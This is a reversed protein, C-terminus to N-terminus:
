QPAPTATPPFLSRLTPTPPNPDIIIPTPQDPQPFAQGQTPVIVPTPQGSQDPTPIVFDTPQVPPQDTAPVNNVAVPVVIVAQHGQGDIAVLRMTYVGNPLQSTDWRGLFSNDGPQQSLIPGDVINFQSPNQGQGVEIQYRNFGPVSVTGRIEVLGQVTAGQSPSAVRVIPRPMNPDCQQTPPPTIPLTIGRQEAWAKGAPDGNLWAIATPDDINLFVKNIVYEPCSDNAIFGTFSDVQLTKIVDSAPPPPNAAIFIEPRRNRCEQFDQTGFDTCINMQQVGPSPQFQLIPLGAHADTMVQRWIPAAGIIGSNGRMATNNSNGVWVGVVLQPTYGLTWNDKYENTTGTKAAAPRQGLYLPSNAGFAPTRAQNDSLISTLLYAVGPDVVQTAPHETAEFVVEENNGNKRTVKAISYFDVRKGANALVSYGRVMDILPVEVSGLAASLGAAEPRVLPFTLGVRDAVNQFRDVGAYSLAKVAPINYSNALASRMSHPGHFRGDYNRPCYGPATGFCTQVDWIITGPTWYQGNPNRELAAAYVFPKISSGPQRPALVVNFQGDISKDNFDASGVMALIAGDSPRVALVAGNTVNLSKLRAIQDKVSKEASDQIKPDITTYVTFGSSYIEAKGFRAELQQQVYNVFHPYTANNTRAQFTRAKVQAILVVSQDIDQETVCFPGADYPPHEMQICGANLRLVSIVDDFRNMAAQRRVIPDYTAPSQVLGALFASEALNLEKVDKSFFTQSAAQAGYALNGYYINNLYIEMIQSKTYRRAVESAVIIETIKRGASRDQAAGPDLILNRTVQQTVTSAGTSEGARLNQLIARFIAIIDFGPDEYFRENEIKVTSFILYPNIQNLPVELRAGLNPDNLQYLVRNNRDLIRVSQSARGAADPLAVIQSEYRSIISFYFLIVGIVGIISVAMAGFVSVIALRILCGVRRQRDALVGKPKEGYDPQIGAKPKPPVGAQGPPAYSPGPAPVAGPVAGAAGAASVAAGPQTLEVASHPVTLGGDYPAVGQDSSSRDFFRSRSGARTQTESRLATDLRPAARGVMTAGPDTIPVRQPLPMGYEDLPIDPRAQSFAAEGVNPAALSAASALLKGTGSAPENATRGPPVSPLWDKGNYKYWRDSELGIMWWYGEDDLIMLKRLEGQLQDRTLSGASYRRRLVQVSQEVEDYRHALEPNVPKAAPQAKDAAQTGTNGEPPQVVPQSGSGGTAQAAPQIPQAPPASASVAPPEPSAASVPQSGTQSHPVYVSAAVEGPQPSAAGISAGAPTQRQVEASPEGSNSSALAAESSEDKKAVFGVGPVYNSYDVETSIAAGQPLDAAPSSEGNGGASSRASGALAAARSEAGPPIYWTGAQQPTTNDPMPVGTAPQASQAAIQQETMASKPVFWGGTAESSSRSEGPRDSM